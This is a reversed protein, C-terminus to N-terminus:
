SYMDIALVVYANLCILLLTPDSRVLYLFLVHIDLQCLVDCCYPPFVDSQFQVIISLGHAM